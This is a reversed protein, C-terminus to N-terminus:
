FGNDSGLRDLMDEVHKEVEDRKAELAPIFAKRMQLAGYDPRKGTVRSRRQEVVAMGASRVRPSMGMASRQDYRSFRRRAELAVIKAAERLEKRLGKALDRDAARLAVTLERLGRIRVAGAM